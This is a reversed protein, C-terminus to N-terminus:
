DGKNVHILCDKRVYRLFFLISLEAEDIQPTKRGETGYLVQDIIQLYISNHNNRWCHINAEDIDFKHGVTKTEM